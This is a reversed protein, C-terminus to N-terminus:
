SCQCSPTNLSYKRSHGSLYTSQCKDAHEDNGDTCDKDGDCLWDNPICVNDSCMFQGADCTRGEAVFFVCSLCRASLSEDSM